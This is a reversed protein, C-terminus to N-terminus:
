YRLRSCLPQFCGCAKDSSSCGSSSVCSNLANIANSDGCGSWNNQFCQTQINLDALAVVLHRPNSGQMGRLSSGSRQSFLRSPSYCYGLNNWGEDHFILPSSLTQEFRPVKRATELPLGKEVSRTNSTTTSRQPFSMIHILRIMVSIVEIVLTTM